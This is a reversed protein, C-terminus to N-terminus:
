TSISDILRYLMSKIHRYSGKDGEVRSMMIAGEITAYFFTAWEDVDFDKTLQGELRGRHLMQKFSDKLLAISRVVRMRLDPHNDDAEISTNLIPCGGPIPPDLVYEEYYDVIAKLKLPATAQAKIRPRLQDLVVGVAHEFAALVVEDKNQFNGYIAGKTIGTANTIDSLSTATYGKTNFLPMARTIILEKTQTPNRM